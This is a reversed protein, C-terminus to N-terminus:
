SAYNRLLGAIEKVALARHSLTNKEEFTLEAMTRGFDSLYFVPDYGFGGTGRPRNIIRGECTAEGSIEGGDPFAVVVVARYRGGRKEPPVGALARLLIAIRDDQDIGDWGKLHHLAGPEGDLADVELGSDDALAALGSADAFARAKIRANETYTTGTEEPELDLGIDAPAAIEWGSRDLLGALERIKGTNNSAIVLRRPARGDPRPPIL